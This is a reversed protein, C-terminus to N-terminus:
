IGCARTWGPPVYGFWSMRSGIPPRDIERLELLDASGYPDHVIARMRWRAPAARTAACMILGAAWGRIADWDRLDRGKRNWPPDVGGFVVAVTPTLWRHTGL